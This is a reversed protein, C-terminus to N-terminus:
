GVATRGSYEKYVAVLFDRAFRSGCNGVIQSSVDIAKRRIVRNAAEVLKRKEDESMNALIEHLPKFDKATSSVYSTGLLGGLAGGYTMGDKGGLLGGIVALFAASGGITSAGEMIGTVTDKLDQNVESIEILIDFLM